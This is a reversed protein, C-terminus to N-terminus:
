PVQPRMAKLLQFSARNRAEAKSKGEGVGSKGSLTATCKFTPSHAPGFQDYNYDVKLGLSQAEEQLLTTYSIFFSFKALPSAKRVEDIESSKQVLRIAIATTESLGKELGNCVVSSGLLAQACQLRNSSTPVGLSVARRLEDIGLADPLLRHLANRTDTTLTVGRDLLAAHTAVEFVIAGLFAVSRNDIPHSMAHATERDLLSFYAQDNPITLGAAAIQDAISTNIPRKGLVTARLKHRSESKARRIKDTEYRELLPRLDRQLYMHRIISDCTKTRAESKSQSRGEFNVEFIRARCIWTPQHDSGTPEFDFQPAPLQNNQLLEQLLTTSDDYLVVKLAASGLHDVPNFYAEIFELCRDVGENKYVLSILLGFASRYQNPGPSGSLIMAPDELFYKKWMGMLITSRNSANLFKNASDIGYGSLAGIKELIKVVALKYIAIGLDKLRDTEIPTPRASPTNDPNSGERLLHQLENTAIAWSYPTAADSTKLGFMSNLQLSFREGREIFDTIAEIQRLKGTAVDAGEPHPELQIEERKDESTAQDILTDILIDKDDLQSSGSSDNNYFHDIEIRPRTKISRIQEETTAIQSANITPADSWLSDFISRAAAIDAPTNLVVCTEHNHRLGSYSLNASGVIAVKDDVIYLKTHLNDRRRTELRIGLHTNTLLKIADLDSAKGSLDEARLRTITRIHVGKQVALRLIKRTVDHKIYPAVLIIEESANSLLSFFRDHLPTFIIEPMKRM